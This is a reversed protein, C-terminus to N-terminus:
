TPSAGAGPHAVRTEVRQRRAGTTLITQALRSGAALTVEATSVSVGDPADDAAVVRELRAGAALDIALEANALYDGQGEYSELLTLDAGEGVAVALRSVHAGADPAAVFRLALVRTEGAAVEIRGPGRGNIVAIEEPELAAFPGPALPGPHAPSAPPIVRVLGRLDSWRWDEQRRSPLLTADATEIARALTM